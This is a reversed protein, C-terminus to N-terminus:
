NLFKHRDIEEIDFFLGLEDTCGEDYLEYIWWDFGGDKGSDNWMELLDMVYRFNHEDIVEISKGYDINMDYLRKCKEDEALPDPQYHFTEM